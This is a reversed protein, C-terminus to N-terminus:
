NKIFIMNLESEQGKLSAKITILSTEKKFQIAAATEKEMYMGQQWGMEPLITKYFNMIDSTSADVKMDVKGNPGFSMKKIIEAGKIMPIEEFLLEGSSQLKEFRDGPQNKQVGTKSAPPVLANKGANDSVSFDTNFTVTRGPEIKVDMIEKAAREEPNQVKVYYEGEPLKYEAPTGDPLSWKGEIYKADEKKFVKVFAKIPHNNKAATVLLIGGDIGIQPTRKVSLKKDSASSRVLPSGSNEKINIFDSPIVFLRENFYGEKINKFELVSTQNESFREERIIFDLEKSVWVKASPESKKSRKYLKTECDYGSILEDNGAQEIMNRRNIPWGVLPNVLMTKRIDKIVAYKKLQPNLGWSIGTELNVIMPYPPVTEPGKLKQLRYVNDKVYIKYLFDEHPDTIVIDATFQAGQVILPVAVLLISFFLTLLRSVM